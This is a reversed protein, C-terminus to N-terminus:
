PVEEPLTSPAPKEEPRWAPVKPPARRRRVLYMVATVALIPIVILLIWIERQRTWSSRGISVGETASFSETEISEQTTPTSTTWTETYIRPAIERYAQYVDIRGSGYNNDKGPSGLDVATAELLDAIEDCTLAPDVGWLLAAAGAVHPTAASTGLFRRYSTTVNDPATVDPKIRGDNTPGRSSYYEVEDTAYDTAGVTFGGEACSPVELSSSAVQHENLVIEILYVELHLDETASYKLIAIHYTGNSPATVVIQEGPFQTETQRDDSRAVEVFPKEEGQYIYTM